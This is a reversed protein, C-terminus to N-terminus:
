KYSCLAGFGVNIIRETDSKEGCTWHESWVVSCFEVFISIISHTCYERSLLFFLSLWFRSSYYYYCCHFLDIALQHQTHRWESTVVNFSDYSERRHNWVFDPVRRSKISSLEIHNPILTVSVCAMWNLNPIEFMFTSCRHQEVSVPSVKLGIINDSSNVGADHTQPPSLRLLHVAVGVWDATSICTAEIGDTNILCGNFICSSRIRLMMVLCLCLFDYGLLFFVYFHFYCSFLLTQHEM